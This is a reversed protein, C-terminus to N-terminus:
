KATSCVLHFTLAPSTWVLLCTLCHISKPIKSLGGDLSTVILRKFYRFVGREYAEAEVSIHWGVSREYICFGHISDRLSWRLDCFGISLHVFLFAWGM